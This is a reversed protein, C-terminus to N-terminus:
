TNAILYVYLPVYMYLPGQKLIGGMQSVVQGMHGSPLSGLSWRGNHCVKYSWKGLLILCAVKMHFSTHDKTAHIVTSVKYYYKQLNIYLWGAHLDFGLLISNFLLLISFFYFFFYTAYQFLYSSKLQGNTVNRSCINHNNNIWQSWIKPYNFLKMAFNSDCRPIYINDSQRTQDTQHAITRVRRNWTM